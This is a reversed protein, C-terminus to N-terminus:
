AGLAAAPLTEIDGGSRDTNHICLIVTDPALTTFTHQAGAKIVIGVPAVFVGLSVGDVEVRVSGSAVYSLHEYRHAHQQGVMGAHRFLNSKVFVGDVMKIDTTEPLDFRHRLNELLSVPAEFIM